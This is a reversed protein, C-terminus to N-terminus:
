FSECVELLKMNVDSRWEKFLLNSWEYEFESKEMEQVDELLISGTATLTLHEDIIYKGDEEHGGLKKLIAEALPRLLDEQELSDLLRNLSKVDAGKAIDLGDALIASMLLKLGWVLVKKDPRFYGKAPSPQFVCEETWIKECEADSLPVDAFVNSKYVSPGSHSDHELLDNM